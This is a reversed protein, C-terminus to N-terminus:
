VAISAERAITTVSCVARVSSPFTRLLMTNLGFKLGHAGREILPTRALLSGDLFRERATVGCGNTPGSWGCTATLGFGRAGAGSDSALTRTHGAGHLSGPQGQASAPM